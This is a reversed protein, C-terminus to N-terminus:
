AMTFISAKSENNIRKNISKSNGNILLLYNPKPKAKLKPKTKAKIKLKPKTESKPRTKPESKPKTQSESYCSNSNVISEYVSLVM